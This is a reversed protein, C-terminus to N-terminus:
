PRVEVTLRLSRGDSPWIGPGPYMTPRKTFYAHDLLNSVGAAIRVDPRWQWGGNLDVLTYAPVRGRAGNATPTVTNLADAFTASTHSVQLTGSWRASLLQVGNRTQLRPVSEVQNGVLSRNVGGDIVSGARYTADFLATSTFASLQTAGRTFLPADFRAELGNTITRGLNTKYVYAAGSADTLTLSGFRNDYRMRFVGVDFTVGTGVHGGRVGGEATWGRADKLAPNVREIASEPVVDKLIQPRYSQSWGGYWTLAGRSRVETRVGLLPFRHTITNPLADAAYYALRGSLATTGREVRAGPVVSWRDTLQLVQEAFLAVNRTRYRVDRAFDGTSLALTWDTGVTGRGQQRRRMRNNAVAIGAALPHARGGMVFRHILRLEGTQSAFNDIDVQRPAFFGNALLTDPATAFGPLMVSNRAGYVGSLQVRVDTRAGARWDATVSPVTIDPSYYNRTRTAQQPDAAFMADTLPGPVQTRYVSRGVQARLRLTPSARWVVRGFEAQYTSRSADRYGDTARASGYTLWDVAGIRGGLANYTSRTGFSALTHSGTYSIARTTDADRTVYDVVGGFQSGYQLGATGRVLRVEEMSEVPPSYHSAPYGYIDSNVLVGDQRVNMEWSRHPDLGRTSIQIQNGSGDMDYVFVGPVKAFLQRGTKEAASADIRHLSVVESRAGTTLMMGEVPAAARVTNPRATTRVDVRDLTAVSDRAAKAPPQAAVRAAPSLAMLTWVVRARM